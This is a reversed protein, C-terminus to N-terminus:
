GHRAIMVTFSGAETDKPSRHEDVAVTGLSATRRIPEERFLYTAHQDADFEVVVLRGFRYALYRNGSGTLEGAMKEDSRLKSLFAQTWPRDEVRRGVSSSAVPQNPSRCEGSGLVRSGSAVAEFVRLAAPLLHAPLLDGTDTHFDREFAGTARLRALASRDVPFNGFRIREVRMPDRERDSKLFASGGRGIRFVPSGWMWLSHFPKSGGSWHVQQMGLKLEPPMKKLWADPDSRRGKHIRVDFDLVADAAAWLVGYRNALDAKEPLDLSM